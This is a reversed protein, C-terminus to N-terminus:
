NYVNIYEETNGAYTPYGRRQANEENKLQIRKEFRDVLKM